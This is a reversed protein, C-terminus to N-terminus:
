TRDIHIDPYREVLTGIILKALTQHDFIDTVSNRKIETGAGKAQGIDVELRGSVVSNLDSQSRGRNEQDLVHQGTDEAQYMEGRASFEVVARDWKLENRVVLVSIILAIVFMVWIDTVLLTLMLLFMSIASVTLIVWWRPNRAEAQGHVSGEYNSRGRMTSSSESLRPEPTQFRLNRNLRLNQERTGFRHDELVSQVTRLLENPHRAHGEIRWYFRTERHERLNLVDKVPGILSEAVAEGLERGRLALAGGSDVSAISESAVIEIDNDDTQSDRDQPNEM